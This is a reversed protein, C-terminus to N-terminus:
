PTTPFTLTKVQGTEGPPDLERGDLRLRVGGANGLKLLLKKSFTLAFTDGKRLSFQRTDTNDANSHVWCEALAIIVLNHRGDQPAAVPAAPLSEAQPTAGPINEAQRRDAPVAPPASQGPIASTAAPALAPGAGPPPSTQRSAAQIENSPPPTDRTPVPPPPLENKDSIAPEAKPLVASPLRLELDSFLWFGGAAALILALSVFTALRGTGGSKREEVPEYSVSPQHSDDPWADALGAYVLATELELLNGYAKVFGRAYAAQPLEGIDAQEMARVIRPMLKLHDAVTEVSLGRRERTQRLMHGLEEFDM